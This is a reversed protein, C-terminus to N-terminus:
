FHSAMYSYILTIHYYLVTSYTHLFAAEYLVMGAANVANEVLRMSNQGRLWQIAAFLRVPMLVRINAAYCFFVLKM